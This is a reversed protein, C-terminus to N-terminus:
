KSNEFCALNACSVFVILKESGLEPDDPGTLKSFIAISPFLSEGNRKVRSNQQSRM